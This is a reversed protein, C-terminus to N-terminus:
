AFRGPGFARDLLAEIAPGHAPTENVLVLEPSPRCPQLSM